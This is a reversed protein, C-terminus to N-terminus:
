VAEECADVSLVGVHEYAMVKETRSREFRAERGKNKNKKFKARELCLMKEEAKSEIM